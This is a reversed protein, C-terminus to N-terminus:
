LRPLVPILRKMLYKRLARKVADKIRIVFPLQEDSYGAERLAKVILTGHLYGEDLHGELCDDSNFIMCGWCDGAEPYITDNSDVLKVFKAIRRKLRALEKTDVPKAKGVLKLGNKGKQFTIGDYFDLVEGTGRISVYWISKEQYVSLGTLSSFENIREKTTHTYFGGSDLTISGDVNWTLVDTDHYRIAISGDEYNVKLTSRKLLKSSAVPKSIGALLDAKRRPETYM